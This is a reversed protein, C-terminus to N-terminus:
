PDPQCPIPTEYSVLDPKLVSFLLSVVTSHLFLQATYFCSYMEATPEAQQSLIFGPITIISPKCHHLPAAAGQLHM